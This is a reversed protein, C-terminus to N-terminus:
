KHIKSWAEKIWDNIDPHEGVHLAETLEYDLKCLLEYVEDRTFSNKMDVNAEIM